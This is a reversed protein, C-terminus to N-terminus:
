EQLLFRSGKSGGLYNIQNIRHWDQELQTYNQELKKMINEGQNESEEEM